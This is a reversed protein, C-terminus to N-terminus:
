FFDILYSFKTKLEQDQRIILNKLSNENNRYLGEPLKYNSSGKFKFQNKLTM